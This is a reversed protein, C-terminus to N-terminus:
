SNKLRKREEELKKAMGLSGVFISPPLGKHIMCLYNSEIKIPRVVELGITFGAKEILQRIHRYGYKWVHEHNKNTPAVSRTEEFFLCPFSLFCLGEKLLVRNIERLAGMTDFVHELIHSCIVLDFSDNEFSLHCIDEKLVGEEKPM